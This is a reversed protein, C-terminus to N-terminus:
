NERRVIHNRLTTTSGGSCKIVTGCINCIGEVDRSNPIKRRVAFKWVSSM